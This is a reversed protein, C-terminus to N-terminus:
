ASVRRLYAYLTERSIGFENALATKSEGADARKSLDAAEAASLKAKRGKYKGAAKALAIGERRRELVLSREFEAFAEMLRFQLRSAADEGGTFTVAEKAFEVRVGRTTLGLVIARLEGLNRALRDMSQCVITDGERVHRLM